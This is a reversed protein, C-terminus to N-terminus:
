TGWDGMTGQKRKSTSSSRGHYGEMGNTAANETVKDEQRKVQNRSDLAMRTKTEYIAITEIMSAVRQAIIKKIEALSFRWLEVMKLRDVRCSEILDIIDIQSAGLSAQLAEARQKAAEARTRLAEVEQEIMVVRQTCVGDGTPRDYSRELRTEAYESRSRM